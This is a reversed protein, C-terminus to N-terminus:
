KASFINWKMEYYISWVYIYGYVHCRWLTLMALNNLAILLHLMISYLHLWLANSACSWKSYKQLGLYFLKKFSPKIMDTVHESFKIELNHGNTSIHTTLTKCKNHRATHCGNQKALSWQNQAHNCLTTGLM